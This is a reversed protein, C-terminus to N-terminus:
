KKKKRPKTTRGRGGKETTCRLIELDEASLLSLVVKARSHNFEYVEMIMEVDKTIKEKKFWQSWRSKKPIISHLFRFHAESSMENSGNLLSVFGVTEFFFSFFNNTLFQSYNKEFHNDFEPIVKSDSIMKIYDFAGLDGM